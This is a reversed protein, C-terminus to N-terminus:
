GSRWIISRKALYYASTAELVLVLLMLALESPPPALLGMCAQMLRSAAATPVLLVFPRLLGPVAELPYFVPPLVSVLMSIIPSWTWLDKMDRAKTSLVYGSFSFVAWVLVLSLAAFPIMAARFGQYYAALGLVLALAPVATIFNALSIGLIYASASIPAAVYMDQLRLVLRNFAADTELAISSSVVVMVAAGALAYGIGREGGFLAIFFLFSLPALADHFSWWPNRKLPCLGYFWAFAAIARLTSRARPGARSPALELREAQLGRV